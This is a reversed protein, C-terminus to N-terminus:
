HLSDKSHHLSLNFLHFFVFLVPPQAPLPLTARPPPSPPLPQSFIERGAPRRPTISYCAGEEKKGALVNEVEVKDWFEEVQVRLTSNKAVRSPTSLAILGGGQGFMESVSSGKADVPTL